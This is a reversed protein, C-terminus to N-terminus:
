RMGCVSLTESIPRLVRWASDRRPGELIPYRPWITLLPGRLLQSLLLLLLLLLLVLLLLLLLVEPPLFLLFAFNFFNFALV